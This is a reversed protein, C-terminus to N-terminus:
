PKLKLENEKVYQATVSNVNLKEIPKVVPNLKASCEVDFQFVQNNILIDIGIKKKYELDDTISKGHIGDVNGLRDMMRYEFVVPILIETDKQLVLTSITSNGVVSINTLNPIIPYLYAGCSNGGIAYFDIDDYGLVDENNSYSQQFISSKKFNTHKQLRKFSETIKVLNNPDYQPNNTSVMAVFGDSNYADVLKCKYITNNKYYIVNKQDEPVSNNIMNDPIETNSLSFGSKVLKFQDEPQNTVDLNRFYIIQGAKQLLGENHHIGVNYYKPATNIDFTVGPILTKLEIPQSNNNKLRIMFQKKIITGFQEEKILNVTDAYNGAFLQITSGSKVLIKEKNFDVIEVTLNSNSDINKLYDIDKQIAKLYEFLSINKQEPTFFGSAIDDSKHYYLKESEQIEQSIHRLIGSAKLINNFESTSLDNNNRDVISTISNEVIDQPFDIRLIESWDSTIQSVPYGVESVARVRIEVSENENISISVQNINIDDTDSYNLTEWKLNGYEDSYRNLTKSEFTTWPSYTFSIEKGSETILKMTQNEVVDVNKSLYRYQIDYKIIHQPRTQTSFIPNQHEWAGLVRYKPKVNKVGSEIANNDLNRTVVLLNQELLNKENRLIQIKELRYNKEDQSKFKLTDIENQLQNINQETFELKNKIKQKEINLTELTQRTKENTIHKNIQVVNFNRIDLKVQKPKLGLSYPINQEKILSEFYSSFNTVKENFFEDITYTRNNYTVKYQSTDFKIGKSPYSIFKHNKTSLFAVFKSQPKVPISVKKRESPLIENFYLQNVGIQLTKDPGAIQTIKVNKTLTNIDTIKYKATGDESILLDDVKLDIIIGYTNVGEYKIDNLILDYSNGTVNNISIISFEGFYKIKQLEPTLELSYDDTQILGNDILYKIKLQTLEETPTNLIENWGEKIEYIKCHINSNLKNSLEVPIKVSPFLLNKIFSNDDVICNQNGLLDTFNTLYEANIFSTKTIQSLSGDSNLLYSINDENTLSNFNLQLRNLENFLSEFSKIKIKETVYRGLENTKKKIEVEIDNVGNNAQQFGILLNYINEYLFEINEFLKEATTM